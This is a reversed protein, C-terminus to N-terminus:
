RDYIMEPVLKARTTNDKASFAEPHIPFCLFPFRTPLIGPTPPLQPPHPLTSMYLLLPYIEGWGKVVRFASLLFSVHGGGVVDDDGVTRARVALVVLVRDLVRVAGTSALGAPTPVVLRLMSTPRALLGALALLPLAALASQNRPYALFFTNPLTQLGRTGIWAGM